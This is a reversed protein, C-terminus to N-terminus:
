EGGGCGGCGGCGSGGGDGGADGGGGSCGSGGGGWGEHQSATYLSAHATGSLVVLGGLAVGLVFENELPARAERAHITMHRALADSGAATQLPPKILRAAVVFTIILLIVLFAVPKNRDLGVAVKAVGLVVPAAFLKTILARLKAGEEADPALGYQQLRSQLSDVYPTIRRQFEARSVGGAIEFEKLFKLEPPLEAGEKFEILAGTASVEAAGSALLGALIADGVRQPGGALCALELPDLARGDDSRDGIRGRMILAAAWAAGALFIYLTLFQGGTWDLPNLTM